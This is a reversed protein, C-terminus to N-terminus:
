GVAARVFNDKATLLDRLGCTLDPGEPISNAMSMALEGCQRSVAQLREPLHSFRFHKLVGSVSPHRSTGDPKVLFPDAVGVTAVNSHM